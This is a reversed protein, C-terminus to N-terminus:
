VGNFRQMINEHSLPVAATRNFLLHESQHDSPKQISNNSSFPARTSIMPSCARTYFENFIAKQPSGGSPRLTHLSVVDVRLFRRKKYM